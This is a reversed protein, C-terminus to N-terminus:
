VGYKNTCVKMLMLGTLYIALTRRPDKRMHFPAMTLFHMAENYRAREILKECNYGSFLTKVIEDNHERIYLYNVIEGGYLPSFSEVEAGSGGTGIPEKFIHKNGIISFTCKLNNGKDVCHLKYLGEHIFDYFGNFSHMLKGLDYAIDGGKIFFNGPDILKDVPNTLDFPDILINDFHLDGHILRLDKSNAPTFYKEMVTGRVFSLHTKLEVKGSRETQIQEIIGKLNLGDYSEDYYSALFENYEIRYTIYIEDYCDDWSFIKSLIRLAQQRALETDSEDKAQVKESHESQKFMFEALNLSQEIREQYRETCRKKAYDEITLASDIKFDYFCRKVNELISKYLDCAVKPEFVGEKLLLKRFSKSFYKPMRYASHEAASISEQIEPLLSSLRNLANIEKRPDDEASTSAYIFKAKGTQGPKRVKIEKNVMQRFAIQDNIREWGSKDRKLIFDSSRLFLDYTRLHSEFALVYSLIHDILYVLCDWKDSKEIAAQMTSKDKVLLVVSRQAFVEKSFSLDFVRIIPHETLLFSSAFDICEIDDIANVNHGTQGDKGHQVGYKEKTKNLYKSEERNKGLMKNFLNQREIVPKDLMQVEILKRLDKLEEFISNRQDEEIFARSFPDAFERDFYDKYHIAYHAQSMRCKSLFDDLKKLTQPVNLVDTKGYAKIDHVLTKTTNEPFPYISIRRQSFQSYIAILPVINNEQLLDFDNIISLITDTLVSQLAIRYVEYIPEIIGNELLQEWDNNDEVADWYNFESSSSHKSNDIFERIIQCQQHGPKSGSVKKLLDKLKSFIDSIEHMLIGQDAVIIRVKRMSEYIKNGFNRQQRMLINGFVPPM